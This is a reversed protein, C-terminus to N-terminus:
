RRIAFWAGSVGLLGSPNSITVGNSSAVLYPLSGTGLLSAILAQPALMYGGSGSSAQIFCQPVFGFDIPFGQFVSQGPGLSFTGSALISGVGIGDSTSLLYASPANSSRADYGPKTVWFGNTGDGRRGLVVRAAM